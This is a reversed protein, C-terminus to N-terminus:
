AVPRPKASQTAANAASVPDKSQRPFFGRIALPWLLPLVRAAYSLGDWGERLGSPTAVFIRNQGDKRSMGLPAAGSRLDTIRLQGFIDLAQLVNALNAIRASGGDYIVTLPAGLRPAVRNRIWKWTRALDAPDIFTVYVSLIIFQFLPVNMAYELTLHLFVGFLLIPYRLEKFWVVSGLSFEIVLTMWTGLKVMIPSQVWAPMPFRQFEDLQYVYHLATGDIWSPGTSKWWVTVLYVLAMQFQIIRQAWPSSPQIESGEKGKWIRLLRDISFAAGAPAFILFFGTVRLLTDGSNLIYMNREHMSTLCLYVIINSLRTFLGVTLCMASALFVWFFVWIWLDDQPLLKFLNIRTGPEFKNMTDISLIAHPGFWTLWDPSLLILNATVLIGYLIRFLTIPTPLHPAFFVKNWARVLARLSM